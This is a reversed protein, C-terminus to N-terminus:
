KISRGAKKKKTSHRTRKNMEESVPISGLVSLGLYREVDDPTKVTDDLVYRAILVIVTLILGAFFGLLVNKPINPSYPATPQNAEENTNFAEIDMVNKIHEATQQRVEDAIERARTPDSDVVSIKLIRTDTSAQASVKGALSGVSETLNLVEIVRSLVTRSTVMEVADKTIQTSVQLDSQTLEAGTSRRDLIYATTTSQYVPTIFFYSVCFAAAAGLVSVIIIVWIRSLLMYFLEQLDIRLEDDTQKQDM